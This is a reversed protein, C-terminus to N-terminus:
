GWAASAIRALISAVFDVILLLAALERLRQTNTYTHIYIYIHVYIYIYM